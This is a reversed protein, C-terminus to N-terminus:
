RWRQRSSWRMYDEMSGGPDPEGHRTTAPPTIPPPPPPPATRRPVPAPAQGRGQLGAAYRGLALARERETPLGAIREVAEPDRALHGAVRAGDPLDVLLQAFGADAGLDMLHQRRDDWDPFESSGALHFARVRALTEAREEILREVDAQTLPQQGDQGQQPEYRALRQQLEAARRAAEEARQREAYRQKTLYGIRQDYSRKERKYREDASEGPPPEPPPPEGPAEGAPAQAQEQADDPEAALTESPRYAEAPAQGPTETGSM